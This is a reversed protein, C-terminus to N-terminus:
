KSRKVKGELLRECETRQDIKRKEGIKPLESIESRNVNCSSTEKILSIDMAEFSQEHHDSQLPSPTEFKSNKIEAVPTSQILHYNKLLLNSASRQVSNEDDSPPKYTDDISISTHKDHSQCTMNSVTAITTQSCTTYNTEEEQSSSLYPLHRVDHSSISRSHTWSPATVGLHYVRVIFNFILNCGCMDGM